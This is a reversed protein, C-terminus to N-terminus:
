KVPKPKPRFAQAVQWFDFMSLGAPFKVLYNPECIEPNYKKRYHYIEDLYSLRNAMWYGARVLGVTLRSFNGSRQLQVKPSLGMTAIKVGEQRLAQLSELILLESSGNPAMPDRVLDELLVGQRAFIPLCSLIAQIRGEHECLFYRKLQPFKFLDLSAMSFQGIPHTSLWRKSVEAIQQELGADVGLERRYERIKGGRKLLQNRASRVKKAADGRPEYRQVDFILDDGLRAMSGGWPRLLDVFEQGVIVFACSKRQGEAYAIFEEAATRWHERACVPEGITLLMRPAALHGVFGEVRTLRYPLFEPYLLCTSFSGYGYKELCSRLFQDPIDEGTLAPPQPFFHRAASTDISSLFM